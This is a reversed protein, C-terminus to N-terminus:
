GEGFWDGRLGRITARTATDEAKRAYADAEDLLRRAQTHDAMAHAHRALGVRAIAQTWPESLKDAMDRADRLRAVAAPLDGDELDLTGLSVQIPACGSPDSLDGFAGLATLWLERADDRRGEKLACEALLGTLDAVTRGDGLERFIALAEHAQEIAERVQGDECCAKALNVLTVGLARPDASRRADILAQEHFERAAGGVARYLEIMGLANLINASGAYDGASLYAERALLYLRRAEDIEGTLYTLVGLGYLATTMACGHAEGGIAALARRLWDRGERVMGRLYWFRWLHGSMALASAADGAELYWGMARRLDDASDSLRDLWLAQDSQTLRSAATAALRAFVAAHRARFEPAEESGALLGSAYERVTRLYWLRIDGDSDQAANLLSADRLAVVAALVDAGDAAKDGCVDCATEAEFAAPFVSLRRFVRQVEPALLRYSADLVVALSRHRNEADVSASSVLGLGTALKGHIERLSLVRVWPALLELALPLRDVQACVVALLGADAGPPTWGPTAAQARETFLMEAPGPALPAIALEREGTLRLLVRSTVIVKGGPGAPGGPGTGALMSVILAADPIQEVNDLITVMRERIIAARAAALAGAQDTDAIGLAAIMAESAATVSTAAALPIFLVREGQGALVKGAEAALRTKGAGGMGTLTVLRVLPDAVLDLLRSLEGDRGILSGPFMPLSGSASQVVPVAGGAQAVRAEHATAEFEAGDAKNLGLARALRTVGDGRPVLSVGRELDSIAGKSMGTRDALDKQSLNAALRHRRLAAGFGKADGADTGPAPRPISTTLEATEQDSLRLAPVLRRVTSPHPVSRGQELQIITRYAVGSAEALKELTLEARQRYARLLEAFSGM